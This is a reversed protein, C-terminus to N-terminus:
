RTILELGKELFSKFLIIDTNANKEIILPKPPM